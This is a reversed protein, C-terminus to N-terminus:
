TTVWEAYRHQTQRIIRRRQHSGNRSTAETRASDGADQRDMTTASQAVRIYMRGDDLVGAAADPDEADGRM